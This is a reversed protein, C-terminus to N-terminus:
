LKGTYKLLLTSRIGLIAENCAIQGIEIMNLAEESTFIGVEIDEDDIGYSKSQDIDTSNFACLYHYHKESSSGASTFGAGLNILNSENVVVGAEEEAERTAANRPNERVGNKIDIHGAVVSWLYPNNDYENIAAGPRFQRILLFSDKDKDYLTLCVADAKKVIIFNLEGRDGKFKEFEFHRFGVQMFPYNIDIKEDLLKYPKNMITEMEQLTVVINYLFVNM